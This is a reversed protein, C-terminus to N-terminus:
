WTFTPLDNYTTGDCDLQLYKCGSQAALKLLNIFPDSFGQSKILSAEGSELDSAAPVYIFHGYGYPYIVLTDQIIKQNLLESDKKTIHATSVDLNKTIFPEKM